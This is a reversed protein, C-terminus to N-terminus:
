KLKKYRAKLYEILEADGTEGVEVTLAKLESQTTANTVKTRLSDIYEAEDDESGDAAINGDDDAQTIGAAAALAYRRGFTIASGVAHPTIKGDKTAVVPMEMTTGMMQGSAHIITTTLAVTTFGDQHKIPGPLQVIALNFKSFTTRVTDLVVSLDAYTSKFHPNTSNKIAHHIEAFAGALAKGLESTNNENM